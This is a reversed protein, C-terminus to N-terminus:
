RGAGLKRLQAEADARDPSSVPAVELFRRYHEAADAKRGTRLLAEATSFELPAAWGPRQESKQLATAAASLPALARAANGHELVLRGYRYFWFPHRLAGDPGAPEGEGAIAKAWEALADADDSKDEFCEALTAHAEYRSPRLELARREHKIADEIAGEMRELVGQQWYAEPNLKDLALAKDIEDRALELQAPTAENAAWALYVHYEARNPDLDVARKLYRLADAQQSSGRLMMARGLYHHAEASTPRAELVKRLMAIADDPRGISVYASGVRLQLDPDDPAKALAGKFQEIAKEVDGAEEFLLGRELSLGPYDKDVAAVRDLEEAADGFRRVRRLTVALRFHAAVDRPDKAVAADYQAIAGEHDGQLEAVDGLARLLAPSALLKQKAEDLVAKADALKGGWSLLESLAVYPAVADRRSPDVMAVAARLDAEAASTNGLHQEVKGLLRLIAVSKPFRRRAEALETKADSLRDLAIKAEADDAIADPSSPDLALATEFRALAETYRGEGLLLRGEGSLAGVNRPNLRVAQAFAERAESASGRELHLWARAAYAASLESPSAMARAPGEIVVALDRLAQGEDAGKTRARLILAGPHRPSTSLTAAIERRASEHDGLMDYSRALGFHARPDNSLDLARRFAVVARAGDKASLEVAGLLLAVEIQIGDTASQRSAADLAGRAKEIDGADAAQAALAVDRYFIHDKAPLEALLQRAPSPRTTDAGFRLAVAGDLLAAYATLARARPTRGHADVAMDIAQKAADYTDSSLLKQSAEVTASTARAYQGACVLDQAVLYGYAGYPTVQLAAGGLVLAVGLAVAAIKRLSVRRSTPDSRERSSAREGGMGVPATAAPLALGAAAKPGRPDAAPRLSAEVGISADGAAGEAGSTPLEVEGFAMGGDGRHTEGMPPPLPSGRGRPRPKDDLELDGFDASSTRASGNPAGPSGRRDTAPPVERPLEIEGFSALSSEDRRAPLHRDSPALAPLSDAAVPFDIEGFARRAGGALVPLSQAPAPLGVASVAPLGVSVAPLLGAAVPLDASLTPLDIYGGRTVPLDDSHVPVDFEAQAFSTPPGPNAPGRAHAPASSPLEAAVEPLDLDFDGSDVSGTPAATRVTSPPLPPRPAARPPSAAPPAVMSTPRPPPRKAVPLAPAASTSAPLAASVVPLDPEDLFGLAAPFDSPLPTRTPPPPEPASPALPRLPASPALPRLPATLAPPRLPAPPTPAGPKAVVFSHGCKPCRMKLGAAPVRREDLQYPAQCGECEVNLMEGVRDYPM